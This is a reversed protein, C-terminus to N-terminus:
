PFRWPDNSTAILRVPGLLGSPREIGEFRNVLTNAVEVELENTGAVLQRTIDILYPPFALPSLWTGNLRVRATELVLGLDLLIRAAARDKSTLAVSARYTGIGSFTPLGLEHWSLLDGEHRRGAVELCWGDVPRVWLAERNRTPEPAPEAAAACLAILHSQWPEFRLALQVTGPEPSLCAIPEREGTHPVLREASGGGTLELTADFARASENVIFYVNGGPLQRRHYSLFESVKPILTQRFQRHQVETAVRGNVEGTPIVRLDPRIRRALLQVLGAEGAPVIGVQGEGFSVATSHEFRRLSSRLSEWEPPPDGDLLVDPLRGAFLVVGGARAFHLLAHMPRSGIAVLPPVVVARFSEAGVQLRAGDVEAREVLEHDVLDFDYQAATLAFAIRNLAAETTEIPPQPTPSAFPFYPAPYVAQTPGPVEPRVTCWAQEIPYYLAVPAVHLGQSLVASLRAVHEWLPRSHEWWPNQFFLSPPCEMRRWEEISYYFAHPVLWNVGRVYQHDVIRKMYPPALKWGTLAFTESLVRSRDNAHGISAVLKESIKDDQEDIRDVGTVHLPRLVSFPNGCFRQMALLSEEILLHGTLKLGNSECWRALQGTYNQEFLEAVTRWYDARVQRARTGTDEWLAPLSPLLDYGRRQCFQQPLQGTWPLTAPDRDLFNNYFGPEDTFFGLVTSGFHEGLRVRYQEHTLRIFAKATEPDLLDVYGSRCYAPCFNTQRQRFVMLCCRGPPAHWHVQGERLPLVEFPEDAYIHHFFRRDTWAPSAQTIDHTATLPHEPIDHVAEIRCGLVAMVQDPAEIKLHVPEAQDLYHREVCLHKACLHPHAAIVAGGAYGSPWNDEDYIWVKMGLRRAEEVALRCRDFWQDSLYPISRGLRSHIVFGGIGQEHMLRIQSLLQAPELDGNWFWFPCARHEPEPHSFVSVWPDSQASASAM